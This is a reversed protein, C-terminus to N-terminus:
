SASYILGQEVSILIELTWMGSDVLEETRRESRGQRGAVMVPAALAYAVAAVGGEGERILGSLASSAQYRNTSNRSSTLMSFVALIARLNPSSAKANFHQVHM